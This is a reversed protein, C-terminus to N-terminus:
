ILGLKHLLAAVIFMGILLLPGGPRPRRRRNVVRYIMMRGFANM